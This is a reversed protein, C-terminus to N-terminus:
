GCESVSLSLSLVIFGCLCVCVVFFLFCRTDTTRIHTDVRNCCISDGCLRVSCSGLHTLARVVKASTPSQRRPTGVSLCLRVHMCAHPKICPRRLFLLLSSFIFLLHLVLPPLAFAAVLAFKFVSYVLARLESSTAAAADM